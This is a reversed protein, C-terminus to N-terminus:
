DCAPSRRGVSRTAARSILRVLSTAPMCSISCRVHPSSIIQIQAQAAGVPAHVAIWGLELAGQQIEWGVSPVRHRLVAHDRDRHSIPFQRGLRRVRVDWRSVVNLDLHRVAPDPDAFIQEAASEFREGCCLRRSPPRTQTQRRNVAEDSLRAPM